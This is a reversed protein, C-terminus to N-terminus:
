RDVNVTDFFQRWKAESLNSHPKAFLLTGDANLVATQLGNLQHPLTLYVTGVPTDFDYYNNMSGLVKQYVAPVDTFSEPTPQESVAIQDGAVMVAFSLLSLSTDFKASGPKVKFQSAQPLLLPSTLQRTIKQPIPPKPWFLLTIVVIFAISLAVAILKKYWKKM